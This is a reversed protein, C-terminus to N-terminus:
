SQREDPAEAILRLETLLDNGAVFVEHLPHSSEIVDREGVAVGFRGQGTRAAM